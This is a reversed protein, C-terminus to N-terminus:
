RLLELTKEASLLIDKEEKEPEIILWEANNKEALEIFIKYDFQPNTTARIHVFKIRNKNEKYFEFPDIGMISAWYPDYEIMVETNDLIENIALFKSTFQKFERKHNHYVLNINFLKLRSKIANLNDILMSLSETGHIEGYTMVANNCGLAKQYQLFEDFNDMIYEFTVHTAVISIGCNDAAEKILKADIDSPNYIEIGKFGLNKINNLISSICNNDCINDTKLGINIGM